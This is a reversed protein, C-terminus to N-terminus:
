RLPEVDAFSRIRPRYTEIDLLVVAECEGSSMSAATFQEGMWNLDTYGLNTTGRNRPDLGPWNARMGWGANAWSNFERIVKGDYDVFQTSHGGLYGGGPAYYGDERTNRMGGYIPKGVWVSYGVALYDLIDDFSQLLHAKLVKHARGEVVAARPSGGDRYRDYADDDVPYTAASAFGTKATADAAVSVVCGAGGLRMGREACAQRGQDYVYLSSLSVIDRMALSPPPTGADPPREPGASSQVPANNAFEGAHAGAEGVCCGLLQGAYRYNLWQWNDPSRAPRQGLMLKPATPVQSTIADWHRVTMDTDRGLLRPDIDVPAM